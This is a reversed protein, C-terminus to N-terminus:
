REEITTVVTGAAIYSDRGASITKKLGTLGSLNFKTLIVRDVGNVSSAASIVDSSDLSVGLGGSTLLSSIAEEVNQRLTEDAITVSSTKVVDVSVDIEISSASKVLVDATVPRVSEVAFTTDNVLRNFDYSVTLREGEKPATYDYSIFYTSGATPQTLSDISITGDLSGSLGVFGNSIVVRSVNFYRNSSVKIGSSSVTMNEVTNTDIIFFTVLLTDGTIPVYELNRETSSIQVETRQLSSDELADESYSNTMLEHNLLDFTFDTSSVLGDTLTVKSVGTVMGVFATSPITSSGIKSRIAEALDVKLGDRRVTMLSDVRKFGTGKITLRGQASIGQVNMRLYSPSLRLLRGESGGSYDHSVPQNGISNGGVIFKNQYGDAPLSLLASTPVLTPVNAVYDVYVSDGAMAVDDPLRIVAGSFSGNDYGDPSYLDVSNYIVTANDGSSSVTDTPLTIEKASFSGNFLSTNFVERGTDDTISRIRQINTSVVLKGSANVVTEELRSNVNVVRSVPHEVIVHYGDMASYLVTENEADVKNGFGWDISDQTTRTFLSQEGLNDFDIEDDYELGWLYNVQLTDNSTPLTSGSIKIRGTTNSLGGDLNQNVVIYREGTTLNEVRTTSIVPTHKLTLISRDTSDVTSNENVISFDQSVSNVRTVETFDLPDQSNFPGKSTYESPLSIENSIFHIKDFGFPSGSFVGTDEILEFSGQTKGNEDVYKELFNPGSSSGSLSIIRNVPQYPLKGSSISLSKRQQFDLLPNLDRQGLIIDNSSDTADGRGGQDRWILSETFNETATGQIYVDVKGGTGSAIIIPNGDDDIGTDTGDRIMLPDGPEVTLADQIRSDALVANKYGLATGINSGAFVGLARARFVEDTESASGGTFSSVNTVNSIGPISQTTLQYRGVNGSSGPSIAEAGVEVSYKDSIGSLDLESRIRLANASFINSNAAEMTVSSLTRFTVGNSATILTNSPIFIDTSLDNTTFVVTGSAASGNSRILGWNKALRDLSSGSASSLSQLNAINRLESYLKSLESAPGEVFLDRSPSGPKTDLDPQVLRLFDIMGLVIEDLSKFAVM